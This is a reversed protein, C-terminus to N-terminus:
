GLIFWLIKRLGKAFLVAIFCFVLDYLIKSISQYYILNKIFDFSDHRLIAIVSMYTIGILHIITIGYVVALIMNLLSSGNKLEKSVNIVAFIYAFLYGFNYQFVYPLGGGLAFVPYISSLGMILYILIAILGWVEDLIAAIFIVVPIQPIYEFKLYSSIANDPINFNIKIQTFTSIIMLMVCVSVLSITGLCFRIKYNDKSFKTIEEKIRKNFM